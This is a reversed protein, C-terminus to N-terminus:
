VGALVPVPIEREVELRAEVRPRRSAAAPVNSVMVTLFLFLLANSPIQLNFDFFSHVLIGILGASCALAVGTIQRDSVRLARRMAICLSALFLVLLVAGIVGCDAIVQLYDNHSQAVIMRGNNHSYMPYVTEYAGIGAGTIPHAKIMAWTDSWIWQRSIYNTTNPQIENLTQTAKNIIPDAGIWAIGLTAAAGLMAAIGGVRLAVRLRSTTEMQPRSAQRAKSRRAVLAVFVGEVALGLIGGRSLSAVTAIVMMAAAFGFIPRQEAPISGAAIM